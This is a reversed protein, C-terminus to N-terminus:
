GDKVFAFGMYLMAADLQDQDMEANGEEDMVKMRRLLQSFHPDQQENVFISQFSDFYIPRLSYEAALAVFEDWYVVFEPVEEVADQLFFTYRHGFVSVEGTTEDVLPDRSDFKVRYVSNGFELNPPTDPNQEEQDAISDNLHNFLNGADPITGLFVGGPKLYRTVNKLMTRAKSESELAYHMCFQMSITTFPQPDFYTPDLVEELPSEFCDLAFFAAPFKKGRLQEYRDRAQNVSVNAIDIGVYEDTGARVWKHLDGGKGCGLDLVRVKPTRKKDEESMASGDTGDDWPAGLGGYKAILVSKIWNNFNKLGIIPSDNRAVRNTNPRANYHDAVTRTDGMYTERPRKQVQGGGGQYPGGGEDRNPRKRGGGASSGRDLVEVPAGVPKQPLGAVGPLTSTTVSPVPPRTRLPNASTQSQALETRTIPILISQAPTLRRTPNYPERKLPPATPTDSLLNQLSM